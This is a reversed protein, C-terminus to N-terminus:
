TPGMLLHELRHCNPCLLICKNLEPIITYIFTELSASRSVRSIEFEKDFDDLHHFDLSGPVNTYSCNSCEYKKNLSNLYDLIYSHFKDKRSSNECSKCSPKYKIKGTNTKGNSYFETLPLNKNCNNCTKIGSERDLKKSNPSLGVLGNKRKFDTITTRSCSYIEQLEKITKGQLVLRTFEEIDIDAM